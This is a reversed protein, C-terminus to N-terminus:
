EVTETGAIFGKVVDIGLGGMGEEQWSIDQKQLRIFDLGIEMIRSRVRGKSEIALSVTCRGGLIVTAIVMCLLLLTERGATMPKVWRAVRGYFSSINPRAGILGVFLSFHGFGMVWGFSTLDKTFLPMNCKLALILKIM